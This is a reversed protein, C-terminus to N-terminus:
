GIGPASVVSGRAAAVGMLDQIQKGTLTEKDLLEKALEHLNKEHSQLISKARKHAADLLKKVQVAPWTAM